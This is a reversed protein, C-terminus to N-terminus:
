VSSRFYIYRRLFSRRRRPILSLLIVRPARLTGAPLIAAEDGHVADTLRTRTTRSTTVNSCRAASGASMPSDFCTTPFFGRRPSTTPHCSSPPLAVSAPLPTCIICSSRLSFSNPTRSLSLSLPRRNTAMTVGYLM